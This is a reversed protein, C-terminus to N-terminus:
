TSFKKKLWLVIAFVVLGYVTAIGVDVIHERMHYIFEIGAQVDGETEMVENVDSSGGTGINITKTGITSAQQEIIVDGEM